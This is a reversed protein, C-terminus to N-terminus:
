PMARSPKHPRAEPLDDFTKRYPKGPFYVEWENRTLQRGAVWRAKALLADDSLAWLRAIGDWTTTVIWRADPSIAVEAVKDMHDRLIVFSEAPNEAANDWVRATEDSSATAVWRGDRSIAVSWVSDDHGLLATVNENPDARTLDWLRATSDASGTVLWRGDRDIALDLISGEHGRLEAVSSTVSAGGLVWLRATGDRSGTVLRSDNAFALSVVSDAHGELAAGTRAPATSSLDWIRPLDLTGAYGVLAAVLWRGDPSIAMRCTAFESGPLDLMVPAPDVQGLDWLMIKNQSGEATALWKGDPSIAAADAGWNCPIVTGTTSPDGATLDWVHLQGYRPAGTVLRGSASLAMVAGGDGHPPLAISRPGAQTQNPDRLLVTIGNPGFRSSMTVLWGDTSFDIADIRDPHGRLIAPEGHLVSAGPLEWLRATNDYSGTVIWRNGGTAVSTLGSEHGRMVISSNSPDKLSLDWLRATRDTAATVLWRDDETLSMDMLFDDHGHLMTALWPGDEDIAYLHATGGSLATALWRSGLAVPRGGAIRYEVLSGDELDWVWTIAYGAAVLWRGDPSYALQEGREGLKLTHSPELTPGATLDWLRVIDDSGSTALQRGSPSLASAEIARDHTQFVLPAAEPAGINWVRIMGSVDCTVVKVSDIAIRVLNNVPHGGLVWPTKNPDTSTLDWIRVTGDASSSALYRSDQSFRVIGVVHQHGRLVTVNGIRGQPDLKWLRVTKDASGTAVCRGDGSVAVDMVLDDHGQLARGTSAALADRLAQRPARLPVDNARASNLAEVALLVARAPANDIALTSEASLRRVDSVLAEHVADARAQWAIRAAAISAITLVFLAIAALVAVRVTRRHQRIDEGIIEDKPRGLVPSAISAVADQFRPNRISLDEERRVWRLDIYLPVENFVGELVRPLANTKSWNFDKRGDDWALEGDALLILFNSMSKRERWFNLEREVWPSSAADPSAVLLFFTSDDLARAITSWLGPNAALSTVDRFVRMARRRHWPKGFRHLATQLRATLVVQARHSYSIFVAYTMVIGRVPICDAQGIMM